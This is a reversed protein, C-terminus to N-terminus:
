FKGWANYVTHTAYETKNFYDDKIIKRITDESLDNANELNKHLYYYKLNNVKKSESILSAIKAYLSFIDNYDKTLQLIYTDEFGLKENELIYKKLLEKAENTLNSDILATFMLMRDYYFHLEMNNKVIIKRIEREGYNTNNLLYFIAKKDVKFDKRNLVEIDISDFKKDNVKILDILKEAPLQKALIRGITKYEEYNFYGFKDEMFKFNKFNEFINKIFDESFPIHNYLFVEKNKICDWLEDFSGFGFEKLLSNNKSIIEIVDRKSILDKEKLYSIILKANDKDNERKLYEKLSSALNINNKNIILNTINKQLKNRKIINKLEIEDAKKILEKLIEEDKIKIYSLLRIFHRKETEIAKLAINKFQKETLNPNLLIFENELSNKTIYNIQEQEIRYDNQKILKIAANPSISFYYQYTKKLLNPNKLLEIFDMFDEKNKNILKEITMIAISEEPQKKLIAKYILPNHLKRNPLKKLTVIKEIVEDSVDNREIKEAIEKGSLELLSEISEYRM